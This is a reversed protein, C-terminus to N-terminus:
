SFFSMCTMTEVQVLTVTTGRLSFFQRVLVALLTASLIKRASLSAFNGARSKKASIAIAVEGKDGARVFEVKGGKACRYDKTTFIVPASM